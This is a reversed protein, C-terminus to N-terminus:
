NTEQTADPEGTSSSPKTSQTILALMFRARAKLGPSVGAEDRLSEFWRRADAIDDAGYAALGMLEQASANFPTSTNEAMAAVAQRAADYNGLDLETQALRLNALDRYIPEIGSERALAAFTDRATEPEGAQEYVTGARFTALMKYGGPADAAFATLAEAATQTRADEAEALAAVFQDGAARERKTTWWEYGSFGATILIILLAVAFVVIGYRDWVRKLRERRLDEEVEQFIDSM